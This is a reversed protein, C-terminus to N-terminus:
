VACSSSLKQQLDLSLTHVSVCCCLWSIKHLVLFPCPDLALVLEVIRLLRQRFHLHFNWGNHPVHSCAALNWETSNQCCYFGWFPIETAGERKEGVECRHYGREPYTLDFREGASCLCWGLSWELEDHDGYLSRRVQLWHKKM